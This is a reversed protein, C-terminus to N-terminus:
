KRKTYRLMAIGDTVTSEQLHLPITPNNELFLPRGKGLIIPIIGIIYEDIIDAKIFADTLGAGGFLWIDSGEEERLEQIRKIIDGNFFEVYENSEMTRSTAVIFKKEQYNEINVIGCDLFANAGMVITDVGGVFAPFDFQKDTNHNPDGDGMIWDFGGDKDAIYGDLSIALNLIIKRM